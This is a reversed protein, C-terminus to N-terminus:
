RPTVEGTADLEHTAKISSWQELFGPPLPAERTPRWGGWRAKDAVRMEFIRRLEAVPTPHHDVRLDFYRYEQDYAVLLAAAQRGRRDGGAADGAELVRVLRETLEEDEAVEFAAVMATLAHEGTLTNGGAVYGQGIHHGAWSICEGGTFGAARGHADVVLLQRVDRGPDGQQLDAVVQEAAMGDSLLRFGDIGFFPNSFAQSAIAGTGTQVSPVWAGCALSASATAVGLQGTRPCRAVLSFTV